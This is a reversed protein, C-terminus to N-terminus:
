LINRTRSSTHTDRPQLHQCQTWSTRMRIEIGHCSQSHNLLISTKNMANLETLVIGIGAQTLRKSADNKEARISRLPTVVRLRRFSTPLQTKENVHRVICEEEPKWTPFYSVLTTDMLRLSYSRGSFAIRYHVMKLTSYLLTATTDSSDPSLNTPKNSYRSRVKQGGNSTSIAHWHCRDDSRLGWTLGETPFRNLRRAAIRDVVQSACISLRLTAM